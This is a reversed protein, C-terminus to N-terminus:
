IGLNGLMVMIDNVIGTARPHEVEFREIADKLGHMLDEDQNDERPHDLRHELDSVLGNLRERAEHDGPGLSEIESRLRAILSQLDETSM